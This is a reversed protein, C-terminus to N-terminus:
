NDEQSEDNTKTRQQVPCSGTTDRQAEGFFWLNNDAEPDGFLRKINEVKEGLVKEM